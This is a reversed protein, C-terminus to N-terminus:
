ASRMAALTTVTRWNRTTAGIKLVRELVNNSLKSRGYGIPCHLFVERGSASFRDPGAEIEALAVLAPNKLAAKLFTVYLRAPDIGREKLFPNGAVLKAMEAGTRVLVSVPLRVKGALARELVESWQAAAGEAEFVLNGSQVYTRANRLGLEGCLNRLTEMRLPNGGVNVGRLLAIYTRRVPIISRGWDAIPTGQSILRPL